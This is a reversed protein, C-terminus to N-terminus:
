KRRKNLYNKKNKKKRKAKKPQMIKDIPVQIKRRRYDRNRVVMNGENDFGIRVGEM